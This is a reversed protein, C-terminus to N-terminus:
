LVKRGGRMGIVFNVMRNKSLLGSYNYYVEQPNYEEINAM